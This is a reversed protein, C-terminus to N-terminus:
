QLYGLAKLMEVDKEPIEDLEPAPDFRAPRALEGTLLMGLGVLSPRDILV